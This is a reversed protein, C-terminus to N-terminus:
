NIKISMFHCVILAVALIFGAIGLYLRKKEKLRYYRTLDTSGEIAFYISLVAFNFSRFFIAEVGFIVLAFLLGVKSSIKGAKKLADSEMEDQYKNEERSKALIEERNM